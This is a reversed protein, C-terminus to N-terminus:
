ETKKVGCINEAQSVADPTLDQLIEMFNMSLLKKARQLLFPVPSSPEYREFYKCMVDIASVVDERTHIGTTVEAKTLSVAPTLEDLAEAESAGQELALAEKLKIKEDLLNQLNKLLATLRSIDPANESGAKESTITVIGEAQELAHKITKQQYKLTEFNTDKFAAEISALKDSAKKLAEELTDPSDKDLGKKLYVDQTMHSFADVKNKSTEIQNWSYHGFKSDTLPSNILPDIIKKYDNLTSLTNIRLMPYDDEPDQRPYVDDWYRRLFEQILTLGNDLGSFGDTHVLACTLHMAVQIDRSRELLSFALDRVKKWDPEKAPVISDGIQREPTGKAEQELNAFASDAELNEGCPSGPAIEKLYNELALDSM